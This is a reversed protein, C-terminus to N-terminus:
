SPPIWESGRTGRMPSFWGCGKCLPLVEIAWAALAAKKEALWDYRQYVGVIGARSGSVHNLIAETVELRVGLRQLGTAVTRRIDHWSWPDASEGLKKDVAERIRRAVRSFPRAEGGPFLSGTRALTALFARADDSLQINIVRGTASRKRPLRWLGAALDFERWRAGDAEAVSRGTMEALRAASDASVIAPGTMPMSRLLGLVPESLPMVHAKGNKTREAPITWQEETLDFESWDAEFVEGRRQGTLIMLRLATRWPEAEEGLVEWLAKIEASSLVRERSAPAPAAVAGIVPNSAGDPLRPLAWAYFASLRKRANSAVVPSRASLKDMLRTVDSRTVDEARMTGLTPLIDKDFIRTIEPLSRLRAKAAKYDEFLEAVTGEGRSARKVKRAASPDGGERAETLWRRAIERAKEPKMAPFTGITPKRQTHDETRYYLVFNKKGKPTVKVAFGPVETDWCLMDREGPVLAEVTRVTLKQKM